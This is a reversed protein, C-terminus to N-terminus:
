SNMGTIQRLITDMKGGLDVRLERVEIELRDFEQELVNINVALDCSWWDPVLCSYHQFSHCNCCWEWLGGSAIYSVGRIVRDLPKGVQYWRCLANIGCVPCPASLHLSEQSSDFTQLWAADYEAQVGVWNYETDM